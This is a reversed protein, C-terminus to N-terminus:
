EESLGAPVDDAPLNPADSLLGDLASQAAAAEETLADLQSSIKELTANVQAKADDVAVGQSVLAGIKKSASKREALLNQSEIDAKKRRADLTIFQDADFNYGRAALATAIGQPDQRVMKIDLM